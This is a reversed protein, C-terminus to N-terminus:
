RRILGEPNVEQFAVQIITYNIKYDKDKNVDRTNLHTYM